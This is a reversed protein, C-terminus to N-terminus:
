ASDQKGRFCLTVVADAGDYSRVGFATDGDTNLATLTWDGYKYVSAAGFSVCSFVLVTIVTLISIFRKM